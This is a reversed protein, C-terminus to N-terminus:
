NWKGTFWSHRRVNAITKAVGSTKVLMAFRYYLSILVRTMNRQSIEVTKRISHNLLVFRPKSFLAVNLRHNMESGDPFQFPSEEM